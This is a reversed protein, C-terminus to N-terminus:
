LKFWGKVTSQLISWTGVQDVRYEIVSAADTEVIVSHIEASNVETLKAKSISREHTIGEKRFRISALVNTNRLQLYLLVLAAGGGTITSLDWNHWGNDITWNGTDKDVAAPNARSVFGMAAIAAANTAIDSANSAIGSWATNINSINTTILAGNDDIKGDIVALLPLVKNMVNPIAYM